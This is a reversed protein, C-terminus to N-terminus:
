RFNLDVYFKGSVFTFLVVWDPMHFLLVIGSFCGLFAVILLLARWRNSRMQRISLVRFRQPKLFTLQYQQYNGLFVLPLLIYGQPIPIGAEEYNLFDIFATILDTQAYYLRNFVFFLTIILLVLLMSGIRIRLLNDFPVTQKAHNVVKTYKLQLFFETAILDLLYYLGIFFLDWEFVFYGLLPIILEGIAQIRRQNPHM